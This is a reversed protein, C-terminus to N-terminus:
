TLRAKLEEITQQQEKIAEILLGIVNGYAVSKIGKDDEIVVEPLVTEIEQAIVGTGRRGTAIYDFMVGRLNLVKSVADTITEVNTKLSADSNSTVTGSATINGSNFSMVAHYGNNSSNPTIFSVNNRFMVEGGTGSFSGSANGSPDVNFCPTVNGSTAGIILAAYSSPSYGFGSGYMGGMEVSSSNMFRLRDDVLISAKNNASSYSNSNKFYFTTTLAGAGPTTRPQFVVQPAGSNYGTYWISVNDYAGNDGVNGLWIGNSGGGIAVTGRVDLKAISSTSGISVNGGVPNLALPYGNNFVPSYGNLLYGSQIWSGWPSSGLSGMAIGDGGSGAIKINANAPIVTDNATGILHLKTTPATTGIGLNGSTDLTMRLGSFGASGTYFHFGGQAYKHNSSDTARVGIGGRNGSGDSFYIYPQITNATTSRNRVYLSAVGDDSYDLLTMGNNVEFKQSSSATVATTGVLLRGGSDISARIGSATYLDLRDVSNNYNILGYNGAGGRSFLVGSSNTSTNALEVYFDSVSANEFFFPTFNNGRRGQPFTSGNRAHFQSAPNTVGIGVNGSSDTNVIRYNSM